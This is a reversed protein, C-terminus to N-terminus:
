RLRALLAEAVDQRVEGREAMARAIRDIEDGVAGAAAAVNRAHLAM